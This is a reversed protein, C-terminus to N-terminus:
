DFDKYASVSIALMAVVFVGIFKMKIKLHNNKM